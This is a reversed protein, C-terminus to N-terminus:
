PSCKNSSTSRLACKSLHIQMAKEGENVRTRTHQKRLLLIISARLQEGEAKERGRERVIGRGKGEKAEEGRERGSGGWERQGGEGRDASCM